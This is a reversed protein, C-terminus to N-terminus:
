RRENRVLYEYEDKGEKVVRKELHLGHAEFRPLWDPAIYEGPIWLAVYCESMCSRIVKYMAKCLINSNGRHKKITHKSM